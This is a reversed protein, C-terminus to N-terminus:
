VNLMLAKATENGYKEVVWDNFLVCKPHQRVGDEVAFEAEYKEYLLDAIVRALSYVQNESQM